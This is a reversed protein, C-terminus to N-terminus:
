GAAQAREGEGKDALPRRKLLLPARRLARGVEEDEGAGFEAKECTANTGPARPLLFPAETGDIILNLFQVGARLRRLNGVEAAFRHFANASFTNKYYM